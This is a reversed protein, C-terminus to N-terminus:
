KVMELIQNWSLGLYKMCWHVASHCWNCLPIFDDLHDLIYKGTSPHKKGYIEHCEIHTDEHSCFFCKAGLLEKIRKRREIRTKKRKQKNRQYSAKQWKRHKEPQEKRKKKREQLLERWKEPNNRFQRYYKRKKQKRQERSCEESCTLRTCYGRGEPVLFEVGCVICIRKM